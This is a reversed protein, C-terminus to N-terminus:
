LTLDLTSAMTRVEQKKNGDGYKVEKNLRCLNSFSSSSALSLSLGGSDDLDLSGKEDFEAAMTTVKLSLDLDLHDEINSIMSSIMKRKLPTCNTGM